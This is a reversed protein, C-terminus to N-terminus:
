DLSDFSDISQPPHCVQSLKRLRFHSVFPLSGFINSRKACSEDCVSGGVILLYSGFDLEFCFMDREAVAGVRALATPTVKPVYQRDSKRELKM